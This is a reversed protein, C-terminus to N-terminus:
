GAAALGAIAEAETDYFSAFRGLGVMRSIGRFNESLGTIAAKRGTNRLGSLCDILEAIGAGDFAAHDDFRVVVGAMGAAAEAARRLADRSERCLTGRVRIVGLAGAPQFDVSATRPLPQGLRDEARGLASELASRRIPKDIFDTAGLHLSQVALDMDGHGTIVIVETAPATKKIRKLVELGDMDPMKLDTFVIHPEEEAVIRLGSPGDTAVHVAYGYARLFLRFMTLTATEDDIVLVTRSSTDM